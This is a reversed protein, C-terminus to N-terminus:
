LLGLGLMALFGLFLLDTRELKKPRMRITDM